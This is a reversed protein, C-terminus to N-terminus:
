VLLVGGIEGTVGGESEVRGPEVMECDEELEDGSPGSKSLSSNSANGVTGCCVGGDGASVGLWEVRVSTVAGCEGDLPSGRPDKPGPAASVKDTPFQDRAHAATRAIVGKNKKKQQMCKNDIEKTTFFTM